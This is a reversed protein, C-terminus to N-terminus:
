SYITKIENIIINNLLGIQENSLNDNNWDNVTADIKNLLKDRVEIIYFSYNRILKKYSIKNNIIEKFLLEQLIQSSINPNSLKIDIWWICWLACFGNPDGIYDNKLENIEMIQFGIKPLYNQPPIYSFGLNYSNIKTQLINDLLSPNYDMGYPSGYGHPEFREVKLLEYDFILYNAHGLIYKEVKIEIGIPIIFFRFEKNQKTLSLLTRLDLNNTSPLKLENGSWLAEIGIIDCIKNRCEIISNMNILKLSSITSSIFKKNLYLIGCLVDLTSGTFTSLNVNPYNKILKPYITTIPYSYKDNITMQEKFNKVFKNIKNYMIQYCLDKKDDITYNIILEKETNNLENVLVNTKCRNDWYDIWKNSTNTKIQHIYSQTIIDIFIPTDDITLYDFIIKNNKDILFIDLKKNILINKIELWYNNKVLLFLCSHGDNNQINLNTNEIFDTLIINFNNTFLDFNKLILHCCTNGDINFLNYDFNVKKLIKYVENIINKENNNKFNKNINNIFYHMFINGSKDQINGNFNNIQEKIINIFTIDIDIVVLYHLPSYNYKNEIENFKLKDIYNDLMYKLIDYCKYQIVLHLPTDGNNTKINQNNIFKTVIKYIDINQNKIALHLANEGNFNKIFYNNINEIILKTIEINNFKIAYFLPINGEKDFIEFINLSITNKNKDIFLKLIDIYSFKIVTYLISRYNEDLIDIRVDKDLLAKIIDLKNFVIAYELLFVNSSDKINYNINNNIILKLLLEWQQAKVYQFIQLNLKNYNDIELNIDINM